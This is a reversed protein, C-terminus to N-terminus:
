KECLEWRGRSLDTLQKAEFSFLYIIIIFYFKVWVRRIYDILIHSLWGWFCHAMKAACTKAELLHWASKVM